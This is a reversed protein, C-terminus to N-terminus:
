RKRRAMTWANFRQVSHSREIHRYAKAVTEVRDGLLDAVTGYDEPHEMLWATALLHRWGHGRFGACGPIYRETLLQLRDELNECPRTPDWRWRGVFFLHSSRGALLVDRGERAYHDLAPTVSADLDVNLGQAMTTSGNKYRQGECRLRWGQATRVLNQDSGAGFELAAMQGIRLPNALLLTVLAIDRQHMARAAPQTRPPTDREMRELMEFLARIPNGSDLLPRLSEEVDRTPRASEAVTRTFGRLREFTRTCHAAWGRPSGCLDAAAGQLWGSQTIWGGRPHLLSSVTNLFTLAGTNLRGAREARWRIFQEIREADALRALTHVHAVALGAGGKERPLQLWGLYQRVQVWTAHASSCVRGDSLTCAWAPKHPKCMRAPKARWMARWERNLAPLEATKFELLQGWEAILADTPEVLAYPSEALRSKVNARFATTGTREAAVYGVDRSARSPLAQLLTGTRLGLCDELAPIRTRLGGPSALGRRWQGLSVEGIGSREALWTLPRGSATIAHDLVTAFSPRSVTHLAARRRAKRLCSCRSRVTSSATGQDSEWARYSELAAAFGDGMEEGVFDAEIRGVSRMFRRLATRTNRVQASDVDIRPDSASQGRLDDLLVRYTLRAAVTAAPTDDNTTATADRAPMDREFMTM